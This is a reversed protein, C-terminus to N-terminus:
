CSARFMCVFKVRQSDMRWARSPYAASQDATGERERERFVVTVVTHVTSVGCGSRRM